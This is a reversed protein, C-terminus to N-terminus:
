QTYRNLLIRAVILTGFTIFMLIFALGMISASYLATTAETFENAITSAITNGPMFLSTLLQHSNGIVFTVAMTEGLARGLGLIVSGIIGSRLFPLQIKRVVEWRTAGSAYGSEKLLAPVKQFLSLMMNTLLPIIMVALIFGATLIGIGTPTGQFFIGIGPIKGLTMALFPEIYVAFLPTIIFLGWMGYIISPIGALIQLGVSIIVFGRRPLINTAFVAVALSIPLAIMVAITSTIVTGLISTLAGFQHTVPDWDISFVFHWGFIQFALHSSMLLSFFLAAFILLLIYATWQCLKKLFRDELQM